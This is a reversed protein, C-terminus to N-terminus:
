TRIALGESELRSQPTKLWVDDAMGASSIVVDRTADPAHETHQSRTCHGFYGFTQECIDPLQCGINGRAYRLDFGVTPDREIQHVRQSRDADKTHKHRLAMATQLEIQRRRQLDDSREASDVTRDAPGGHDAASAVDERGQQRPFGVLLDVLVARVHDNGARGLRRSRGLRCSATPPNVSLPRESAATLMGVPHEPEADDGLIPLWERSRGALAPRRQDSADEQRRAVPLYLVGPVDRSKLTSPTM